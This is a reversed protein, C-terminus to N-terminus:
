DETIILEADRRGYSYNEVADVTIKKKSDMSQLIDEEIYVELGNKEWINELKIFNGFILIDEKDALQAVKNATCTGCASSNSCGSCSSSANNQRIAIVM